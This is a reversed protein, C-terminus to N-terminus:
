AGTWQVHSIQEEIVNGRAFNRVPAAWGAAKLIDGAKFKNDNKIQIFGWVGRKGVIKYYKRGKLLQLCQAFEEYMEKQTGTQQRTGNATQWNYYDAVIAELLKEINEMVLEKRLNYKM